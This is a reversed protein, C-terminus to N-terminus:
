VILWKDVFVVRLSSIEKENLFIIEKKRIAQHTLKVLEEVDSIRDEYHYYNAGPYIMWPSFRKGEENTVCITIVGRECEIVIKYKLPLYIYELYFVCM